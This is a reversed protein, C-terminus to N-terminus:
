QQPGEQEPGEAQEAYTAILRRLLARAAAGEAAVEMLSGFLRDFKALDAPEAISMETNVTEVLALEDLIVFGHLPVVPVRVDLPLIAFRLTSLDALALLRDLQAAMVAPPAIPHRLAAESCLIEVATGSDYLVGQRAMRAQVADDTDVPSQHLEAAAHFVHRAYEATQVLGPVLATEFLRIRSAGHEIRQGYEQRARYGSRLQRKWNGAEIRIERLEQRLDVEAGEPAGVLRCYTIVDADSVSQKATEIRSVKSAPWGAADALAKGSLGAATRLERLADGLALRRTEYDTVPEEPFARARVDPVSDCSALRHGAM